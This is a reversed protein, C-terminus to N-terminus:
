TEVASDVLFVQTMPDMAVPRAALPSLASDGSARIFEPRRRESVSSEIGAFRGLLADSEGILAELPGRWFIM